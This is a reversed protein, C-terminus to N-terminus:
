QSLPIAISVVNGTLPKVLTAAGTLVDIQYLSQAGSVSMVAYGVNSVTVGNLVDSYIDFSAQSTDANFGFLGTAALSGNNPPNQVVVQDRLADIDFLSTGTSVSLDNNTYAAAIVLNATPGSTNVPTAPPYDLADDVATTGGANINHRLNQGNDSIIRLRDAAPNFDVGFSTGSLAVSLQSVLTAQGSSTNVSYIGGALGVVYLKGDQVRYDAGVITTDNGSLGVIAPGQRMKQSKKNDFSVLTNTATIGTISLKQVKKDDDGDDTAFSPASFLCAATAMATLALRLSTSKKTM